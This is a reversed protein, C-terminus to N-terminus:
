EYDRDKGKAYNMFVRNWRGPEVHGVVYIGDIVSGEAPLSKTLGVFEYEKYLANNQNQDVSATWGMMMHIPEEAGYVAVPEGYETQRWTAPAKVMHTKLRM